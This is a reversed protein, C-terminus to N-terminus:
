KAIMAGPMIQARPCTDPLLDAPWYTTPHSTKGHQISGADDRGKDDPDTNRFFSFLNKRRQRNTVSPDFDSSTTPESGSASAENRKDYAWTRYPHGQLGHVLLISSSLDAVEEHPLMLYSSLSPIVFEVVPVANEPKHLVTLGTNLVGSPIMILLYEFSCATNVEYGGGEWSRCSRM